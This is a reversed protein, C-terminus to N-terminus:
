PQKDPTTISINRFAVPAHDGQLLLPGAPVEKKTLGGLTGSPLEVNEQVVQGNLVVKKFRGNAVKVGDRFRPAQFEVLLTQWQGPKRAANVRPPSIKYIAGLDQFTLDQQGYNDKLQLEYEGMLYVGSNGGQPLMFELQVTCDAFTRVTYLDDDRKAKSGKRFTTTNILEGKGAVAPPAKLGTPDQPDLGAQGVVWKNRESPGRAVWGDLNKGNFLCVTEAAGLGHVLSWAALLL